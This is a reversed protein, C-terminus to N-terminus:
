ANNKEIVWIDEPMEGKCHRNHAIRLGREFNRTYRVTDFLPAKLRNFELKQNIRKLEEPNTALEYLLSEYEEETSTILEPLGIATLLSAAVRAAFQTGQKTVVPLGAWLADSATTHANYNFTDIFLDAHQHRALHQAHPLKDAFILRRSDVGRKEAEDRLNKDAFDNSKMLWLVGRDLKRLVRMWIDFERPGIKYDKNFCCFVFSEDALGFDSRNTATDAIKRSADNPQYTNPLYIVKESYYARQSAPIVVDDAILYDMFHAGMTGPYGLYSIQIPALGFQFMSTRENTTYGNRNIAIDIQLEKSLNVVESDSMDRIDIFHDVACIIRGRMEDKVDPGYSFAFVEFEIRCHAELMGVMLYMGPFNHFDASYYGLKIRGSTRTPIRKNARLNYSFKNTVYAESVRLQLEPDDFLTLTQFPITIAKSQQIKLRFLELRDFYHTWDCLQMLTYLYHGELFPYDPKLILAREFCEIAINAAGTRRLLLGKNVYADAYKPNIELARDYRELAEQVSNLEAALNGYNNWIAANNPNHSIALKYSIEAANYDKIAAESNGRSNYADDNYPDLILSANYQTLAETHRELASLLTGYNYRFTASDGKLAIAQKYNGDADLHDNRRHQATACNYYADAYTPNIEQARKYHNLAKNYEGLKDYLNGLNNHAEAYDPNLRVATEYKEVAPIYHGLEQLVNGLNNYAEPYEPNTSVARTYSEVAEQKDGSSVFANGLSFHAQAIAPNIKIARKIWSIAEDTAGEQLFALGLLHAADYADNKNTLLRKYIQKAEELQGGQHLAIAQDLLQPETSRAVIRKAVTSKRMKKM